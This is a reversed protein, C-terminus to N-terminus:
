LVTANNTLKNIIMTIMIFLLGAQRYVKFRHKVNISSLYILIHLTQRQEMTVAALALYTKAEDFGPFLHHRSFRRMM